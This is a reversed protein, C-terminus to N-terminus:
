PAERNPAVRGAVRLPFHCESLTKSFGRFVELFRQFGRFVEWVREFGSFVESFRQFGGEWLDEWLGEWLRIERESGRLGTAGWDNQGKFSRCIKHQYKSPKPAGFHECSTKASTKAPNKAASEGPGWVQLANDWSEGAIPHRKTVSVLQLLCSITESSSPCRWHVFFFICIEAVFESQLFDVIILELAPGQRAANEFEFGYSAVHEKGPHKRSRHVYNRGVPM